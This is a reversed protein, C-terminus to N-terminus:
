STETSSMMQPAVARMSFCNRSMTSSRSASAHAVLRKEDLDRAPDARDNEIARLDAVRQARGHDALELRRQLAKLRVRGHPDDHEGSRAVLREARPRVELAHAIASRGKGRPLGEAAEGTDELLHRAHPRRH